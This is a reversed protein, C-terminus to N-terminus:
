VVDEGEREKLWQRVGDTADPKQAKLWLQDWKERLKSMSLINVKWFQDSQSFRIILEIDRETKGDSERLLRCEDIWRKQRDPTLKKIITSEPNNKQMLDILLQTLRIDVDKFSSKISLSSDGRLDENDHKAMSTKMESALPKGSPNAIDNSLDQRSAKEIGKASNCPQCLPQINNILDSGGLFIPKIHDKTLTINPETKGCIVCSYNKLKKLNQWQEETHKGKRRSTQLREQRVASHSKMAFIGLEENTKKLRERGEVEKKDLDWRKIAGLRGAEARKESLDTEGLMRRNYITGDPLRSFVRHKELEVLLAVVEISDAGILRALEDSPIQCNNITLTGRHSSRSMIGLMNIWLGQAALSCAHVDFSSFWDNWFWLDAPRQEEKLSYKGM